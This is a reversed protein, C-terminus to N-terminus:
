YEGYGLSALAAEDSSWSDKVKVWVELHVRRGFLKQMELRAQSAAAKLAEGRHGIIIAKQSEREVWILAHIRARPDEARDTGKSPGAQTQELTFSEIEVTTRYPLEQGYRQMLQERLLEAALFRESRDTLQDPPFLPEGAPLAALIEAELPEVQHGKLASVPVISVFAHRQSLAQLFPLLRSKDTIRDTKNVAVLTPTGAKAIEALALADEDSFQLAEVVFLVLDVDALIARAARNLYRNLANGGRQHLGPTDVYLIQGCTLTSVGLISHRTTQPKHSTIALKQGLLRNLLTSKGVNPRGIIAVYGCRHTSRDPPPQVTAVAANTPAAVQDDLPEDLPEDLPQSM